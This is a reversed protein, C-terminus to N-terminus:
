LPVNEGIIGIAVVMATFLIVILLPMSVMLPLKDAEPLPLLPNMSILLLPLIIILEPPLKAAEFVVVILPVKVILEPPLKDAELVQVTFPLKIIPDVAVIVPVPGKVKFEPPLRLMPEALPMVVLAHPVPLVQPLIRVM